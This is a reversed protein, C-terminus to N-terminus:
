PSVSAQRAADAPDELVPSLGLLPAIRGIVKGATPVANWGATKYGHTGEAPKPEDLMILLVYRPDNGPFMGLFSTLLKNKAYRGNIVKEASGTKGGVFYGKVQAKKATGESVNLVMLHRMLASSQQSIVQESQAEAVSRDRILFTPTILRGGNVLAAGATALQLPTVSIGHGFGITMSAVKNFQPPLLPARGPLETNLRRLLGLKDLFAKHRELGVDLAMKATGINSSYIFVEPVTLVRQKAHYDNIRFSGVRISQTADYTSDLTAVGEDFAMAFTIAKFTSGLEYVGAILRNLTTEDLSTKPDNPNYDPLSAMAVIEGSLVDLVIGGAGIAQFREKAARLEDHLAHQVRLDLSLMVPASTVTEPEALSAVYLSGRGDLYKEIGALGRSDVDVHGVVHAAARGNPYVRLTEERFGIGPIGLNHVRQRESPTVERKIWAFAKKSSLKKRLDKANLEPLNGTLLEIAEDVDIVKRPDIFISSIRIETALVVGNRDVIDPRPYKDPREAQPRTEPPDAPWLSVVGVRVAIVAFCLIFTGMVIRSRAAMRRRAADGAAGPMLSPQSRTGRGSAKAGHKM